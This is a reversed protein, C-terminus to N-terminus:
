RSLRLHPRTRGPRDPAHRRSARRRRRARRIAIAGGVVPRVATHILDWASDLVPIKGITFQGIYLVAAAALVSPHELV